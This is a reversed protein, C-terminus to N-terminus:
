PPLPESLTVAARSWDALARAAAFDAPSLSEVAALLGARWSVPRGATLDARRAAEAGSLTASEYLLEQRMSERLTERAPASTTGAAYDRVAREVEAVAERAKDPQIEATLVLRTADADVVASANVGYSWRLETRLRTNLAAALQRRALRARIEEAASRTPVRWEIRLRAQARAAASTSDRTIRVGPVIPPASGATATAARGEPWRAIAARLAGLMSVPDVAGTLFVTTRVRPRQRSGLWSWLSALDRTGRSLTEDSVRLSDDPATVVTARVLPLASMPTWVVRVGAVVTDLATALRRPRLTDLVIPADMRAVQRPEAVSDASLALEYGRGRLWEQAAAAVARPRAEAFRALRRGILTHDDAFFVAEGLQESRSRQFGLADLLGLLAATADARAEPLWDALATGPPELGAGAAVNVIAQDLAASARTLQSAERVEADITLDSALMGPELAVRPPTRLADGAIRQWERLVTRLALETSELAPDGLPPGVFRRTIRSPGSLAVLRDRRWARATPLQRTATVAQGDGPQLGGFRAAVRSRLTTPDFQGVVLLVADRVSAHARVFRQLDAATISRVSGETEGLLGYPHDAGYAGQQLRWYPQAGRTVPAAAGTRGENVVIDAHIRVLSDTIAAPDVALRAAHTALAADVASPDVLLFYRAHDRRVQANSDPMRAAARRRGATDIGPALAASIHELLHATGRQGPPDHRTGSPLWLEVSTHAATSDPALVVTLGNPLRYRVVDGLFAPQQAAGAAPAAVLVAVMVAVLVARLM